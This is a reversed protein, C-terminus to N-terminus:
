YTKLENTQIQLTADWTRMQSVILRSWKKSISSDAWRSWPPLGPGCKLVSSSQHHAPTVIWRRWMQRRASRPGRVCKRQLLLRIRLKQNMIVWRNLTKVTHTVHLSWESEFLALLPNCQPPATTYRKMRPQLPGEFSPTTMPKDSLITSRHRSWKMRVWQSTLTISRSRTDKTDADIFVWNVESVSGRKADM